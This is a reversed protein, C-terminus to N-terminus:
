QSNDATRLQVKAHQSRIIVVVTAMAIVTKTGADCFHTRGDRHDGRDRVRSERLLNEPVPPQFSIGATKMVCASFNQLDM